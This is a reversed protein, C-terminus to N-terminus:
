NVSPKTLAAPFSKAFACCSTPPRCVDNCNPVKWPPSGGRDTEPLAGCVDHGNQSADRLKRTPRPLLPPHLARVCRMAAKTEWSLASLAM